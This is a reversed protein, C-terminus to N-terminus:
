DLRFYYQYCGVATRSGDMAIWGNYGVSSEQSCSDAEFTEHLKRVKVKSPASQHAPLRRRIKKKRHHPSDRFAEGTGRGAAPVCVLPLNTLFRVCKKVSAFRSTQQSKM